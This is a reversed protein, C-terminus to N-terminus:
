GDFLAGIWDRVANARDVYSILAGEAGPFTRAIAPAQAYGVILAVTILMMLLFGTM